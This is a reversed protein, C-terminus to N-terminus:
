AGPLLAHYVITGVPMYGGAVRSGRARELREPPGQASGFGRESRAPPGLGRSGRSRPRPSTVDSLPKPHVNVECCSVGRRFAFQSCTVKTRRPRIAADFRVAYPLGTQVSPKKKGLSGQRCANQLYTDLPRMQRAQTDWRPSFPSARHLCAGVQDEKPYRPTMTMPLQGPLCRAPPTTTNCEGRKLLFSKGRKTRSPLLSLLRDRQSLETDHRRATIQRTTSRHTLHYM